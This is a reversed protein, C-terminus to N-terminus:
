LQDGGGAAGSDPVESTPPTPTQEAMQKRAIELEEKASAYEPDIALVEEFQNIAEQYMEKRLLCRGLHFHADAYKSDLKLTEALLTIARDLDRGRTAADIAEAYRERSVRRIAELKWPM